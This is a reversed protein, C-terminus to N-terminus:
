KNVKQEKEKIQLDLLKSKKRENKGKVRETAVKYYIYVIGGIGTLILILGNVPDNMFMNWATMILSSLVTLIGGADAIKNPM